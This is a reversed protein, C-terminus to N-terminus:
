GTPFHVGIALADRDGVSAGFRVTLRDDFDLDLGLDVTGDLDLDDGDGTRVDLALHAGVYPRFSVSEERAQWGIVLGAPFSVLLDDGVGLGAGTWWMVQPEGAGELEALSGSVDVGFLAAVDGDDSGRGDDQETVGARFGIGVPAASRRWMALAGLGDGPHAETLLVSLGAPAGPHLMSPVDWVVQAGVGSPLLLALVALAAFLHKM